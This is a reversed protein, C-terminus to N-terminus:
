PVSAASAALAQVYLWGLAFGAGIMGFASLADALRRRGTKGGILSLPFAMRLPPSVAPM